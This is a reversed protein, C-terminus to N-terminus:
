PYSPLVHGFSSSLFNSLRVEPLLNTQQTAKIVTLGAQKDVTQSNLRYYQCVSHLLSRRFPNQITLAFFHEEDALFRRRPTKSRLHDFVLSEIELVHEIPLRSSRLLKRGQKSIRNFCEEGSFPITEEIAVIEMAYEDFVHSPENHDPFLDDISLASFFSTSLPILPDEIFDEEMNELSTDRRVELGAMRIASPDLVNRRRRTTSGSSSSSSFSRLTPSTAPARRPLVPIDQESSPLFSPLRVPPSSGYSEVSTAPRGTGGPIGVPRSGGSITVSNIAM